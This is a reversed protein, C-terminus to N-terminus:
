DHVDEFAFAIFECDATEQKYVSKNDVSKEPVMELAIERAKCETEAKVNMEYMAAVEYVHVHYNNM